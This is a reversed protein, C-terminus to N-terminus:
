ISFRSEAAPDPSPGTDTQERIRPTPRDSARIGPPAALLQTKAEQLAKVLEPHDLQLNHSAQLTDVETEQRTMGVRGQKLREWTRLNSVDQNRHVNLDLLWRQRGFFRPARDLHPELVTSRFTVLKDHAADVRQRWLREMEHEVAQHHADVVARPNNM